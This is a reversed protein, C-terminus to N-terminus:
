EAPDNARPPCSALEDLALEIMQALRTFDREIWFTDGLHAWVAARAEQRDLRRVAGLIDLQLARWTALTATMSRCQQLRARLREIESESGRDATM